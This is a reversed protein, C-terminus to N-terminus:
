REEIKKVERVLLLDDQTPQSSSPFIDGDDEEFYNRLFFPDWLELNQILFEDSPENFDSMIEGGCRFWSRLRFKSLM